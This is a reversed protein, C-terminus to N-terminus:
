VLKRASVQCEELCREPAPKKITELNKCNRVSDAPKKITELNKSNRVSDAPKKITELKKSNRVSDLLIM